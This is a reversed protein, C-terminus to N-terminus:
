RAAYDARTDSVVPPEDHLVLQGQIAGVLRRVLELVALHREGPYDGDLAVLAAYIAAAENRHRRRLALLTWFPHRWFGPQAVEVVWRRCIRARRREARRSARSGVVMAACPILDQRRWDDVEDNYCRLFTAIVPCVSAPYASFKEAALVSALELVCMGEHANAHGGAELRVTQYTVRGRGTM